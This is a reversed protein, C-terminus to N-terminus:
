RGDQRDSLIRRQKKLTNVRLGRNLAFVEDSIGAKKEYLALRKERYAIYDKCFAHCGIRREGCNLCPTVIITIM